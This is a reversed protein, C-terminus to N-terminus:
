LEIDFMDEDDDGEADEEEGEVGEREVGVMEEGGGKEGGEGELSKKIALELMQEETMASVDVESGKRSEQTSDRREDETKMAEFLAKQYVALLDESQTTPQPQNAPITIPTTASEYSPPQNSQPSNPPPHPKTTSSQDRFKDLLNTVDKQPDTINSMRAGKGALRENLTKAKPITSKAITDQVRGKGKPTTWQSEPLGGEQTYFLGSEPDELIWFHDWDIDKRAPFRPEKTEGARQAALVAIFDWVDVVEDLPDTSAEKPTDAAPADAMLVDPQEIKNELRPPSTAVASDADIEADDDNLLTAATSDFDGEADDDDDDNIFSEMTSDFDRKADGEGHVGLEVEDAFYANAALTTNGNYKRLLAICLTASSCGFEQLTNARARFEENATNFGPRLDISPALGVALTRLTRIAQSMDFGCRALVELNHDDDPFGQNRLIHISPELNAPPEHTIEVLQFDRGALVVLDRLAPKWDGKYRELLASVTEHNSFGLGRLIALSQNRRRQIEAETRRPEPPQASEIAQAKLREIARDVNYACDFLIKYNLMSNTYGLEELRKLRANLDDASLPKTQQESASAPQPPQQPQQRPDLRHQERPPFPHTIGGEIMPAQPSGPAPTGSRIFGVQNVGGPVNVPISSSGDSGKKWPSKSIIDTPPAMHAQADEASNTATDEENDLFSNPGEEITIKSEIAVEEEDDSLSESVEKITVKPSSAVNFDIVQEGFQLGEKQILERELTELRELTEHIEDIRDVIHLMRPDKQGVGHKLLDLKFEEAEDLQVTNQDIEAEIADRDLVIDKDFKEHQSDELRQLDQHRKRAAALLAEEDAEDLKQRKNTGSPGSESSGYQTSNKKRKTSAKLTPGSAAVDLSPNVGDYTASIAKDFDWDCDILRQISGVKGWKTISMFTDLTRTREETLDSLPVRNNESGKIQPQRVDAEPNRAFGVFSSLMSTIESRVNSLRHVVVPVDPDNPNKKRAELTKELALATTLEGILTDREDADRGNETDENKGFMQQTLYRTLRETDQGTKIIVTINHRLMRCEYDIDQEDMLSAVVEKREGNSPSSGRSRPEEISSPRM